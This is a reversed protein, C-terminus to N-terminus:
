EDSVPNRAAAPKRYKTNFPTAGPTSPVYTLPPGPWVAYPRARAESRRTGSLVGRTASATVPRAPRTNMTLPSSPQAAPPSTPMMRM